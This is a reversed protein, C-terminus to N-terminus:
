RHDSFTAEVQELLARVDRDNVVMQALKARQRSVWSYDVGGLRRGIAAQSEHAYRHLCEMAIARGWGGGRRCLTGVAEGTVHAVRELVAEPTWRTALARVAPQERSTTRGIRARIREVFAENGLLMQGTVREWPSAMGRRVGEEVFAAYARRGRATAGGFSALVTEHTVWPQSVGRDLYSPLSSWLYCRVRRCQESVPTRSDRSVRIPNLHVYRSLEVLYTEADVLIAKFRGQYLHGVRQHRRNFDGTYAVNLYRMFESLNAQPTEVVLHFHNDMLVYAHLVVRYGDLAARLRQVWARRDADDAVIARRENGRCTVHYVAGPYEVRLARAM